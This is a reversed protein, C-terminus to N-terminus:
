KIKIAMVDWGKPDYKLMYGKNTLYNITQQANEGANFPGNAHLAEFIINKINYKNFDISNIIYTDLGEADIFLYDLDILNYKEMINNFTICPIDLSKIENMEDEPKHKIVHEKNFSSVEYNSNEIYYLTLHQSNPDDNIAINEISVNDLDKYQNKLDDIIFPIPEILVALEIIFRNQNILDFVEDKGNNAGIQIIKM